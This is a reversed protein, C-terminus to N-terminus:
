GFVRVAAGLWVGSVLLGDFQGSKWWDLSHRKTPWVFPVGVPNPWDMLLHSLAGWLFPMLFWTGWWPLVQQHAWWLALLWLPVWHTITRHTILRKGQSYPIELWDPATGGLGGAILSAAGLIPQKLALPGLAGVGFAAGVLRHSFGRM